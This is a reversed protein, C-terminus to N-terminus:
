RSLRFCTEALWDYSLTGNVEHGGSFLESRFQGSAGESSYIHQVHRVAQRFGEKPFIPDHEGSQLFLPRPALLGLLEPLEAHLLIGPIYNDICHRVAMISDQFTNPFGTLVAAHLREDVIAAASAIVAGGSFGMVGAGGSATEPRSLLYDLAKRAEWVRLGALTKGYMLMHKALTDCSNNPRVGSEAQMDSALLREGFGIVDPAIVAMGRKVLEIAFNNHGGPNQVNSSGDPLMGTIQRSGYGHGHIALVGPAPRELGDPILVYAAFALGPAASLEVRERRYGDCQVQELLVPQHSDNPEFEGLMSRFAQKLRERRDADPLQGYRQKREQEAAEYLRQLFVDGQWM